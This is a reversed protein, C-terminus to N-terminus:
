YGNVIIIGREKGSGAELCNGWVPPQIVGSAPLNGQDCRRLLGYFGPMSSHCRGSGQVEASKELLRQKFQEQDLGFAGDILGDILEVSRDMERALRRITNKTPELTTPLTALAGIRKGSRVAERCMEEDIRVIPVGCYSAFDQLSDVAEGVSSCINLIADAGDGIAQVMLAALLAAAEKTVYGAERAKALIDPNKYRMLEAETGLNKKVEMEVLEILEPTTSTYVLGVKM